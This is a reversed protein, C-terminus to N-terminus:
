KLWTKIEIDESLAFKDNCYEKVSLNALTEPKSGM